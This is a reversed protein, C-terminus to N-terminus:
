EVTAYIHINKNFNLEFYKGLDRMGFKNDFCKIVEKDNYINYNDVFFLNSLDNMEFLFISYDENEIFTEYVDYKNGNQVFKYFFGTKIGGILKSFNNEEYIIDNFKFSYHNSIFDYVDFINFRDKNYIKIGRKENGAVVVKKTKLNFEYQIKNKEDFYYVSDAVVGQVYGDFSIKFNSKIIDIKKSKYDVVYANNFYGKDLNSYDAIFYLNDVNAVIKQFYVDNSFINLNEIGDKNIIYIGNYSSILLNLNSLNNSYIYLPGEHIVDELNNYDDNFNDIKSVYNDIVVNKGKISNYYMFKSDKSCLMNTYIANKEFVPLVCEYGDNSIYKIDVIKKKKGNIDDYVKFIYDRNNVNIDFFYNKKEGVSYPTYKEEINFKLDSIELYYKVNYGDFFFNFLIRFLYYFIFLLLLLQLYKKM